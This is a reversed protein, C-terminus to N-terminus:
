KDIISTMFFTAVRSYSSEKGWADIAKVRWYFPTSNAGVVCEKIIASINVLTIKEEEMKKTYITKKFFRDSAIEVIYSKATADCEPDYKSPIWSFDIQFSGDWTFPIRDYIPFVAEPASVSTLVPGVVFCFPKTWNLNYDNKEETGEKVKWFYVGTKFDELLSINKVSVSKIFPNNFSSKASLAFTFNSSDGEWLFEQPFTETQYGNAPSILTIKGEEQYTEPYVIYIEGEKKLGFNPFFWLLANLAVVSFLVEFLLKISM